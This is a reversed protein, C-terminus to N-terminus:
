RPAGVIEDIRALEYSGWLVLTAGLMELLEEVFVQATEGASGREFLNILMEVALAGSLMVAMGAVIKALARRDNVVYPKVAVILAWLVAIFPVGLLFMWIGTRPFVTATRDGGPLLPDSMHGLQEHISAVEDLSLGLFLLPLAVLVWSERGARRVQRAAFLALLLAVSFWQVSSYWTPLNAEQSLHLFNTVRTHSHEIWHDLLFAIGLAFDIIFCAAIPWPPMSTKTQM